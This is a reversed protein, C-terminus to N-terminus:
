GFETSARAGNVELFTPAALRGDGENRYVRLIGGEFQGVLLDKKGDGDIDHVFPAAHGGDVDIEQGAATLTVPAALDPAREQAFAPAGLAFLLALVRKM